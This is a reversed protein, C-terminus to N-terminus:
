TPCANTPIDHLFVKRFGLRDLRGRAPYGLGIVVWFGGQLSSLVADRGFLLIGGLRYYTM